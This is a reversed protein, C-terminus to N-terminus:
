VAWPPELRPGESCGSVCVPLLRPGQPPTTLGQMQGQGRPRRWVRGLLVLDGARGAPPGRPLPWDAATHGPSTVSPARPDWPAGAVPKTPAPSASPVKAWGASHPRGPPAALTADGDGQAQSRRASGEGWVQTGAPEPFSPMHPPPLSSACDARATSPSPRHPSCPLLSAQGEEQQGGRAVGPGRRAPCVPRGRDAPRASGYGGARM